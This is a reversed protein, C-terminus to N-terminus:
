HLYKKAYGDWIEIYNNHNKNLSIVLSELARQISAIPTIGRCFLVKKLMISTIRLVYKTINTM